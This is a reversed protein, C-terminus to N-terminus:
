KKRIKERKKNRNKASIGKIEFKIFTKDVIYKENQSLSDVVYSGVNGLGAICIKMTKM